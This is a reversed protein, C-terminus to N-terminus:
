LPVASFLGSLTMSSRRMIRHRLGLRSAVGCASQGVRVEAWGKATGCGRVKVITGLPIACRGRVIYLSSKYREMSKRAEFKKQWRRSWDKAEEPYRERWRAVSEDHLRRAEESMKRYRHSYAEIHCARSCYVWHNDPLLRNCVRCRDSDRYSIIIDVTEPEWLAGESGVIMTPQLIGRRRLKRIYTQSCGAKQALEHTGWSVVCKPQAM